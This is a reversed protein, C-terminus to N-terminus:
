MYVETNGGNTKEHMQLKLGSKGMGKVTHTHTHTWPPGQDWIVYRGTASPASRTQLITENSAQFHPVVTVKERSGQRAGQEGRCLAEAWM